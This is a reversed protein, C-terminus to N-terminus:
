SEDNGSEVNTVIVFDNEVNNMAKLIDKSNEIENNNTSFVNSLQSNGMIKRENNNVDINDLDLRVNEITNKIEEIQEEDLNIYVSQALKLIDENNIM